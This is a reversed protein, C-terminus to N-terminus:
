LKNQNNQHVKKHELLVQYISNWVKPSNYNPNKKIKLNLFKYQCKMQAIKIKM